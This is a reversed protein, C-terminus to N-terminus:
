MELLILYHYVYEHIGSAGLHITKTAYFLQPRVKLLLVASIGVTIRNTECAVSQLPHPKCSWLEM